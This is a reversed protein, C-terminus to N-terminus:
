SSEMKEEFQAQDINIKVEESGVKHSTSNLCHTHSSFDMSNDRQLCWIHMFEPFPCLM